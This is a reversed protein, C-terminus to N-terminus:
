GEFITDPRAIKPSFAGPVFLRMTVSAPVPVPITVLMGGPIVQPGLPGIQVAGNGSLLETTNVATAAKPYVNPPKEEFQTGVFGWVFGGDQVKCTPAASTATVAVKLLTCCNMSVTVSAPVPKPVTVLWAPKSGAIM